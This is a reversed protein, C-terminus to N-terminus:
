KQELAGLTAEFATKRAADTEGAIAATLQDKVNKRGEVLMHACARPLLDKLEALSRVAVDGRVTKHDAIMEILGGATTAMGSKIQNAGEMRKADKAFDPDGQQVEDALLSAVLEARLLFVGLKLAEEDFVALGKGPTAYALFTPICTQMINAAEALRTDAAMQKDGIRPLNERATLRDFVVGSKASNYRPLQTADTKVIEQLVKNAKTYDDATWTKDIAPIGLDTYEKVSLSNDAAATPEDAGVAAPLGIAWALFLAVWFVRGNALGAQKHSRM